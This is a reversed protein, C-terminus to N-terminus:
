NPEDKAGRGTTFLAIIENLFFLLAIAAGLAIAFAFPYFPIFAGSSIEGARKLSIGYTYSEYSLVAFFFFELMLIIFIVGRQVRIPMRDVLFEVAIHRKDLLAIAIAFTIAIIQGFGVMETAGRIPSIFIKACIVNIFTVIIMSLIGVVGIWEALKMTRESVQRLKM